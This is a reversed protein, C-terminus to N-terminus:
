LLLFGDFLIAPFFGWGFIFLPDLCANIIMGTMMLTSAMKNDGVSILLGHGAMAISATACGFYWIDMYEIVLDLVEGRAGFSAFLGKACSMGVVATVVSVLLILLVGSTSGKAAREMKNGGLAQAAPASVGIGLGHFLLACLQAALVAEGQREMLTDQVSREGKAHAAADTLGSETHEKETFGVDALDLDAQPRLLHALLARLLIDYQQLMEARIHCM